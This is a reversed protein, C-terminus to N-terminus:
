NQRLRYYCTKQADYAAIDTFTVDSTIPSIVTYPGSVAEARELQVKGSTTWQLTINGSTTDIEMKTIQMAKPTAVLTLEYTLYDTGNTQILLLQINPWAAPALENSNTAICTIDDLPSLIDMSILANQALAVEGGIEYSGNGTVTYFGLDSKALFDIDRIEFLPFLPSDEESVLRFTGTM